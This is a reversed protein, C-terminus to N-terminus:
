VYTKFCCSIKASTGNFLQYIYNHINTYGFIIFTRKKPDNDNNGPEDIIKYLNFPSRGSTVLDIIEKTKKEVEENVIVDVTYEFHNM